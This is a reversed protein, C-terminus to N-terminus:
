SLIQSLIVSFLINIVVAMYYYKGIRKYKLEGDEEYVVFDLWSQQWRATKIRYVMHHIIGLLMFTITFYLCRQWGFILTYATLFGFLIFVKLIKYWGPQLTHNKIFRLDLLIEAIWSAM